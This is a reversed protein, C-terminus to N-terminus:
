GDKDTSVQVNFDEKATPTPRESGRGQRTKRTALNKGTSECNSSLWLIEAKVNPQGWLNSSISKSNMWYESLLYSAPVSDTRSAGTVATFLAFNM